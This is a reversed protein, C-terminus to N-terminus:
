DEFDFDPHGCLACRLVMDHKDFIWEWKKEMIMDKKEEGCTICVWKDGEETEFLHM